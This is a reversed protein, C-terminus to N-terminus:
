GSPSNTLLEEIQGRVMDAYAKQHAATEAATHENARPKLNADLAPFEPHENGHYLFNNYERDFHWDPGSFYFGVKVRAAIARGPIVSWGINIGRVSSVDWHLFLGLAADPFWQADPHLTHSAEQPPQAHPAVRALTACGVLGLALIMKRM